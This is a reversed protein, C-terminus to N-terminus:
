ENAAVPGDTKRRSLWHKFEGTQRETFGSGNRVVFLATVANNQALQLGQEPGLVSLATALADATACDDAIVTVAALATEAPWGTRPDIIHAYRHGAFEFFNRYDGSTAVAAPTDLTLIRQVKAGTDDPTEIGIKWPSGDAHNGHSRLEGGIEVLFHQIGRDLLLGTIRDVAFGKAIASLDIQMQPDAKKLAPPDARTQLLRFNVLTLAHEITEPDPPMSRDPKPGFGWTNVLPAVTIDFAGDTLRSVAQARQVLQELSRPVEIWHTTQQQNFRSVASDPSYSSMVSVIEALERDIDQALADMDTGNPIRGLRLTYTTGMIHGHLVRPEPPRSCSVSMAICLWLVAWAMNGAPHWYSKHITRSQM